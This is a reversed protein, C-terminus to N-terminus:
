TFLGAVHGVGRLQEAIAAVIVGSDAHFSFRLGFKSVITPCLINGAGVACLALSVLAGLSANLFSGVNALLTPPFNFGIHTSHSIPHGSPHVSKFGNTVSL